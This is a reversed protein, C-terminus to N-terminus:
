IIHWIGGRCILRVSQYPVEIVYTPEGDITSNGANITVKRNGLPPGMEAKIILESCDECDPILTITVPEESIVGIYYDSPQTTYDSNVLRTNCGCEGGPGTPGTAGTMSSEGPAGTPGTAGPPGAPGIPGTPCDCNGSPNNIIVTDNGAGLNLDAGFGALAKQAQQYLEDSVPHGTALKMLAGQLEILRRDLSDM